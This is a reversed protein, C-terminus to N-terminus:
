SDVAPREFTKCLGSIDLAAPQGTMRAGDAAHGCDATPPPDHAALRALAKRCKDFIRSAAAGAVRKRVSATAPPLPAAPTRERDTDCAKCRRPQPLSGPVTVAAAGLFTFTIRM